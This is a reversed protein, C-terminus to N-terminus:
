FSVRLGLRLTRPSQWSNPLGYHSNTPTPSSNDSQQFDWVQDITTPRQQNLINFADALVHVTVQGFTMAYDLHGDIEYLDPSRGESGRQTLFLEPGGYGDWWGLRSLPTGSMYFGSLGFTLNFPFVYVAQLKAQHTRDITLLGNSNVVFEPYDFDDTINPDRANFGGIERYGGDYNGKLKSYLYSAYLLWRDAFRKQATVEVGRFFRSALPYPPIDQCVGNMCAQTSVGPNFFGYNQDSPLYTDELVSRLSRYIGHLGLTWDAGVQRDIGFVFEEMYEPKLNPAIDNVATGKIASPFSDALAPDPLLSTTDFNFITADREGNLSRINMDMPISQVFHGYSGFLKTKGDKLFDWSFGVRPSWHDIDIFTVNDLGNIKQKEWRVGANITLNPAPKWSDQIFASYMKHNPTAVLPASVPNTIDSDVSAFFIHSYVNRSDTPDPNALIQVLQGGSFYRVVDATTKEYEAGFKVSHNGFLYTADARLDDRTFTKTDFQGNQGLGIFGGTATVINGTQDVYPIQDGGAAPALSLDEHHRAYQATALWQSGFIGEYRFSYDTGGVKNTGLYTTPPGIISDAVAGDDTAPDGFVTAIV